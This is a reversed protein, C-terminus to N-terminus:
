QQPLVIRTAVQMRQHLTKRQGPELLDEVGVRREGRMRPIEQAAEGVRPLADAVSVALHQMFEIGLEVVQVRGPAECNLVPLGVVQHSGRVAQHAVAIM